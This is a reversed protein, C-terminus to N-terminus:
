WGKYVNKIWTKEDKNSTEVLVMLVYVKDSNSGKTGRADLITGTM